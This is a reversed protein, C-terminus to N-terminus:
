FQYQFAIIFNRGAAAIGSSYTRYRQDTINELAMSILWSDTLQYNSHLNVTYWQPSYPNGNADIAYLYAKDQESPALKDYSIKGNYEGSLDLTLKGSTWILHINGFLPAAHRLPATNGNDLEEEGETLSIQSTLKLHNSLKVQAGAELGYVRAHAANQIAQVRSREGQYDIYERGNISFDRRVLADELYTYYGALDIVLADEINLQIGLEGNYAYEPKLSPNPVVVMGPASDFIKGVDDVNPARFATSFNLRWNLYPHQKWVLGASGTFAGTRIDADEFPYDYLSDDFSAALSILNYRAGTQVLVTPSLTWQLNAYAALSEWSAGDPYRPMGLREEGSGVNEESGRSAVQNNVYELGYYLSHAGLNKKFDANVSWANVKEENNYLWHDQYDRNHRSEKFFQYATVVRAEDFWSTTGKYHAQLNGMLWQQPGYYWQAARLVGDRKRYLRDYRPYDSTTSYIFSARLDWNYNPQFRFKELLSVQNYGTPKQVKPNSNEVIQDTNDQRVAYEGRLYESPGHSGMRLDDFDSYSLSSVLAWRQGALTVDAHTTKENNATAYRAYARGSAQTSSSHTFHPELTYFNMVGGVADSGYIVSGPGMIVETNEVALPDISIVNQVNGGRFIATNMRVGDVTILLRNTAFGRIIPSGGGLQSKQIYIQGSNQLLDASTQPTALLVDQQSLGLVKQTLDSKNQRFKSASVVVEELENEDPSLLVVGGKQLIQGKTTSFPLHSIHTIILTENYDFISLDAKGEVDSIVNKTKNENFVAVQFLPNGTVKDKIFVEQAQTLVSFLLIFLCTLIRM